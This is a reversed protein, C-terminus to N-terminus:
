QERERKRVRERTFTYTTPKNIFLKERVGTLGRLAGQSGYNIKDIFDFKRCREFTHM